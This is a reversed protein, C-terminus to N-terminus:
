FAAPRAPRAGAQDVALLRLLPRDKSEVVLPRYPSRLRRLRGPQGGGAAPDRPRERRAHRDTDRFRGLKGNGGRVGAVGAAASGLAAAFQYLPLAGLRRRERSFSRLVRIHKKKDIIVVAEGVVEP